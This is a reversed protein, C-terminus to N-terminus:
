VRDIKGNTCNLGRWLAPPNDFAVQPTKKHRAKWEGNIIANKRVLEPDKHDLMVTPM